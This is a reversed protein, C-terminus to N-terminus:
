SRDNDNRWVPRSAWWEKMGPMNCIGCFLTFAIWLVAGVLVIGIGFIAAIVGSALIGMWGHKTILPPEPKIHPNM